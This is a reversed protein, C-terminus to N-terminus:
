YRELEITTPDYWEYPHLQRHNPEFRFGVARLLKGADSESLGYERQIDKTHYCHQTMVMRRLLDSPAADAPGLIWNRAEERKPRNITEFLSKYGKRGLKIAGVIDLTSWILEWLSPFPTGGLGATDIRLPEGDLFRAVEAVTVDERIAFSAYRDGGMPLKAMGPLGDNQHNPLDSKARMWATFFLEDPLGQAIVRRPTAQTNPSHDVFSILISLM